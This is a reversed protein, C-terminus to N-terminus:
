QRKRNQNAATTSRKAEELLAGCNSDEGTGLEVFPVLALLPNVLALLGAVAVRGVIPGAKPRVQPDNFSGTVRVPSRLSFLSADKPQAHTVLDLREAGLGITGDVTVLTDRTDIVFAKATAVGDKVGFDAVACRLPTQVNGTGLVLLAEAVDLGVAEILLASIRGGNVLLSLDGDATGLLKDISGGRGTLHARGYLTGVSYHMSELKPFLRKLQLSRVEVNMEGNVPSANGNLTVNANIKGGAVKLSLPQLKLVSDQLTVHMTLGTIPLEPRVDVRLAKLQVDANMEAWRDTSFTKEPLVESEDELKAAQRKQEPSATEGAGTAPPVGILPGLDDFDLLNSTLDAQFMPKRGRTDYSWSGRLDSDGVKGAFPDFTWVGEIHRLHGKLRYPPTEPLNVGFVDYLHELTRGRLEVDADISKIGETSAQFTGNVAGSSAGISAEAWLEIPKDGSLMLSPAKAAAKAPEGRFQGEATMQISVGAPGYEGSANIHMATNKPANGYFIRGNRVQAEPLHVRSQQDDGPGFRWTARQGDQELGVNARAVSLNGIVVQAAFLPLVQVAALLDEAEILHKTEAWEPNAVSLSQLHIEPPWALRIDIEDLTVTRHLRESAFREIRREAWESEVIFIALALLVLPLLVVIAATILVTKGIKPLKM